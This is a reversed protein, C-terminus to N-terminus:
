VKFGDQMQCHWRGRYILDVFVRWGTAARVVRNCRAIGTERPGAKGAM